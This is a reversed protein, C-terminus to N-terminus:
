VRKAKEQLAQPAAGHAAAHNWMGLRAAVALSQGHAGEGTRFRIPSVGSPRKGFRAQTLFIGLETALKSPSEGAVMRDVAARKFELSYRKRAIKQKEESV